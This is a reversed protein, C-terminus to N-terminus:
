EAAEFLLPLDIFVKEKKAEILEREYRDAEDEEGVFMGKIDEFLNKM